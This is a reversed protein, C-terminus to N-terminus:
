NMMSFSSYSLTACEADLFCSQSEHSVKPDIPAAPARPAIRAMFRAVSVGRPGQFVPYLCRCGFPSAGAPGAHTAIGSFVVAAVNPIDKIALNAVLTGMSHAIVYLPLGEKNESRAHAVFAVFDEVLIKYDEIYGKESKTPASRGHGCHDIAYVVYNKEAFIYINRFDYM